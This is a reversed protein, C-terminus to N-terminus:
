PVEYRVGHVPRIGFGNSWCLQIADQLQRDTKANPRASLVTGRGLLYRIGRQQVALRRCAGTLSQVPNSFSGVDDFM